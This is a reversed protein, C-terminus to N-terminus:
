LFINSNIVIKTRANMKGKVATAKTTDVSIKLNYKIAINNLTYVAEQLGDETSLFM